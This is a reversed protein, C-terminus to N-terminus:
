QELLNYLIAELKDNEKEREFEDHIKKVAASQIESWIKPNDLIYEVVTKIAYSNREPVLFGSVGDEILEHNGSHETAVVLLGMAMAEKLVNPIGEQDNNEATVSPLIFIHANNLIAIYEEHTHWGDIKIKDGVNLRKILKKYKKKLLGDGIITYRIQPYEKVLQAVARISHVFGKKEVFRGASVINFTGQQPLKKHSFKFKSCDISSHQVIIKNSDCGAQELLQKFANCVPLFLDCADGSDFYKDYAHPNEQLFGTIDYGRLCVVVKGKFNHTKKVDFVKHGLQFIIIDYEDISTPLREFITKKILNYAVVDEQMHVFDGKSLAYIHVDHGRDILGTMQNLMCIDHIKPFCAVVMLIKMQKKQQAYVVEGHLFLLSFCIINWLTLYMKEFSNNHM